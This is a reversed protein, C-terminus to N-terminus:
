CPLPSLPFDFESFAGFALVHGVHIPVISVSPSPADASTPVSYYRLYHALPRTAYPVTLYFSVSSLFRFFLAYSLLLLVLHDVTWLHAPTDWRSTSRDLSPCPSTPGPRRNQRRGFLSGPPRKTIDAICRNQLRSIPTSAVLPHAPSLVHPFHCINGVFFRPALTSASLTVHSLDTPTV